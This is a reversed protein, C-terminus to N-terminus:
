DKDKITSLFKMNKQIIGLVKLTDNVADLLAIDAPSAQSNLARRLSLYFGIRAHATEDSINKEDIIKQALANLESEIFIGLDLLRARSKSDPIESFHSILDLTGDFINMTKFTDEITNLLGLDSPQPNGRMVRQIALHFGLQVYSVEDAAPGKDIIRQSLRNIENEIYIQKPKRTM